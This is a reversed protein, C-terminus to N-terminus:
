LRRASLPLIRRERRGVAPARQGHDAQLHKRDAVVRPGTALGEVEAHKLIVAFEDGGLRAAFSGKGLKETLRNAVDVLVQDGTAHGFTDNIAKFRDLDILMVAVECHNLRAEELSQVFAQNFSTRNALGTLPDHNALYELRKVAVTAIVNAQKLSVALSTAEHKLGSTNKFAREAVTSSRYLMMVFLFVDFALLFSEVTGTALLGLFHTM